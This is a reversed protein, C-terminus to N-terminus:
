QEEGASAALQKLTEQRAMKGEEEVEVPDRQVFEVPLQKRPQIKFEKLQEVKRLFSGPGDSLRLVATRYSEQAKNLSKGIEQLSEVAGVCKDYLNGGLKIIAAVNQAQSEARLMQSVTRLAYFLTTPGVLHVKRTNADHWVNPDRQVVLSFAAESPVFMFVFDPSSIGKLEDYRQESLGKVHVRISAIMEEVARARKENTEARVFDLYSRHTAKADIVLHKAQPLRVVVDPIGRKGDDFYLNEQVQFDDGRRLGSDELINELVFQGWDGQAKVSGKLATALTHAEDSLRQNLAALMEVQQKLLARGTEESLHAEEVKAQFELLRDRLPELLSTLQMRESQLGHSATQQQEALKAQALQMFQEANGRLADQAMAAFTEKLSREAKDFAEQQKTISTKASALEQNLRVIELGRQSSEMAQQALRGHLDTATTQAARLQEELRARSTGYFFMAAALGVAAGIVFAAIIFYGM